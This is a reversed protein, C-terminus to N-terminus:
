RVGIWNAVVGAHRSPTTSKAFGVRRILGRKSARVMAAGWANPHHPELATLKRVDDSSFPVDRRALVAIAQDVMARFADPQHEEVRAIGESKRQEGLELQTM